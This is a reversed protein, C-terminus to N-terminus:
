RGEVERVMLNALHDLCKGYEHLAEAQLSQFDIDLSSVVVSKFLSVVAETSNAVSSAVAVSCGFALEDANMQLVARQLNANRSLELLQRDMYLATHGVRRRTHQSLHDRGMEVHPTALAVECAAQWYRPVQLHYQCASLMNWECEYVDASHVTSSALTTEILIQRLHANQDCFKAALFLATSVIVAQGRAGRQEPYKKVYCQLLYLAIFRVDPKSTIYKSKRASKLLLHILVDHRQLFKVFPYLHRDDLSGGCATLDVPDAHTPLLQPSDTCVQAISNDDEVRVSPQHASPHAVTPQETTSFFNAMPTSDQPRLSMTAAADAVEADWDLGCFPHPPQLIPVGLLVDVPLSGMCGIKGGCLNTQYHIESDGHALLATVPM